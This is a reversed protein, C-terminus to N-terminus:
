CHLNWFSCQTLDRNRFFFVKIKYISARFCQILVNATEAGIDCRILVGHEFYAAANILVKLLQLANHINHTTAFSCDVQILAFILNRYACM